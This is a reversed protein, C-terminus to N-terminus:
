SSIARSGPRSVRCPLPSPRPITANRLAYERGLVRSLALLSRYRWRQLAEFQQRTDHLDAVIGQKATISAQLNVVLLTALLVGLVLSGM